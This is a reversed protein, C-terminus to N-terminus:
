KEEADEEDWLGFLIRLSATGIVALVIGQAAQGQSDKDNELDKSMRNLQLQASIAIAYLFASVGVMLWLIQIARRLREM